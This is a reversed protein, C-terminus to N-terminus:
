LKWRWYIKGLIETYLNAVNLALLCIWAPMEPHWWYFLALLILALLTAKSQLESTKLEIWKEREDKLQRRDWAYFVLYIGLSLILIWTIM